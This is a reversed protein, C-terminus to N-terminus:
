ANVFVPEPCMTLSNHLLLCLLLHLLLSCILLQHLLLACLNPLKLAPACFPASPAPPVAARTPSPPVSPSHFSCDTSCPVTSLPPFLTASCHPLSCPIIVPPLLLPVPLVAAPRSLLPLLLPHSSCPIALASYNAFPLLARFATFASQPRVELGISSRHM